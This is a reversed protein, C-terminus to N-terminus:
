TFAKIGYLTLRTGVTSFTGSTNGTIAITTIAATSRWLGCLLETGQSSGAPLSQRILTTKFTTSNSYNFINAIFLAREADSTDWGTVAGSYFQAQNSTRSSTVTSGNGSLVTQAYTTTSDSNFRFYPSYADMSAFTGTAVIILDTYTQPISSFTVTAVATGITQSSIPEYTKPM